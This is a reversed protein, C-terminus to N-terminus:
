LFGKSISNRIVETTEMKFTPVSLHRNLVSLDIVPRWKKAPKPVLFLRSYFGLSASIRVLIVTRKQLKEQVCDLLFTLKQPNACGSHITPTHLLEIPQALIIRYGHKLILAVRPHCERQEWVQYYCQLRGGPAPYDNLEAGVVWDPPSHHDKNIKSTQKAVFSGRANNQSSSQPFSSGRRSSYGSRSDLKQRKPSRDREYKNEVSNLVSPSFLDVSKFGSRRLHNRDHEQLHPASYKLISDICALELNHAMTMSAETVTELARETSSITALQICVHALLEELYKVMAEDASFLAAQMLEEMNTACKEITRIFVSFCGLVQVHERNVSGMTTFQKTPVSIVPPSSSSKSCISRFSDQCKPASTSFESYTTRYFKMLPRTFPLFTDTNFPASLLREGNDSPNGAVKKELEPWRKNIEEVPLLVM